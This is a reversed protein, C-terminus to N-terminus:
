RSFIHNMDGTETDSYRRPKGRKGNIFIPELAM